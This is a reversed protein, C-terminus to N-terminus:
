VPVEAYVDRKTYYSESWMSRYKARFKDLVKEVEKPSRLLKAKSQIAFGDVSLEIRSDRALNKFWNNESGTTPVLL